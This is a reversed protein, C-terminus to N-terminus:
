LGGNGSVSCVLIASRPRRTRCACRATRLRLTLLTQYLAADPWRCAEVIRGPDTVPEAGLWIGDPEYHMAYLVSSDFLWFDSRPLDDPWEGLAVPIIGIEEGAAANPGYQCTLEYAHLRYAAPGRRARATPSERCPPEGHAHREVPDKGSRASPPRGAAFAALDADEGSGAYSQLTELRFVFYSFTEFPVWFDAPAILGATTV